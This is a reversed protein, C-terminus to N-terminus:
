GRKGVQIVPQAGRDSTLVVMLSSALEAKQAPSLSVIRESSLRQLAEEVMGIAGEVIKKRAAVIASAQQRQLMAGAIEPSYALHTLRTELVAVGAVALRSQLERKLDESVEDGSGRLTLGGKTEPQDYPHRQALHRVATESQVKVFGAYDEVDFTARATDLVRWVVVAGIEIPNGGAENVKLAETNFNHVRLSLKIHRNLPNVFFFGERNVTGNYKGFFVLVEAQNPQLVFFGRMMVIFLLALLGGLLLAWTQGFGLALVLSGAIGLLVLLELILGAWGSMAGRAREVTIAASRTEVPAM